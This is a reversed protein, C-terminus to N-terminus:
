GLSRVSHAEALMTFPLPKVPRLHEPDQPGRSFGKPLVTTSIFRETRRDLGHARQVNRVQFAEVLGEIFRDNV